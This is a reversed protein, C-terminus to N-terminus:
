AAAKATRFEELLRAALPAAAAGGSEGGEVVVAFALDGSFGAFWAVKGLVEGEGVQATGTKGAVLRDPLAAASGTGATVVTEMMQRLEATVAPDFGYPVIGDVWSRGVQTSEPLADTTCPVLARKQLGAIALRSQTPAAAALLALPLLPLIPRPATM